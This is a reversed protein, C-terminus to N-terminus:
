FINNSYLAKKYNLFTEGIFLVEFIFFVEFM